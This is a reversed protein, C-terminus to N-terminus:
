YGLKDNLATRGDGTQDAPPVWSEYQAQSEEEDDVIDGKYTPIPKPKRMVRGINQPIEAMPEIKKLPEDSVETTKKMKKTPGYNLEDKVVTYDKFRDNEVVKETEEKEESELKDLGDYFDEFTYKRKEKSKRINTEEYRKMYDKLFEVVHLKMQKTLKLSENRKKDSGVMSLMKDIRTLEANVDKLLWQKVKIMEEEISHRSHKMFDDIDEYEESAEKEKQERISKQLDNIELTLTNKIKELMDKKPKLTKYNEVISQTKKKTM